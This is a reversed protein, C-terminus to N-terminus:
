SSMMKTIIGWGWSGGGGPGYDRGSVPGGNYNIGAQTLAANIVSASTAVPAPAVKKIIGSANQIGADGPGKITRPNLQHVGKKATVTNGSSSSSGAPPPPPPAPAPLWPPDLAYCVTPCTCSRHCQVMWTCSQRHRHLLRMVQPRRPLHMSVHRVPPTLASASAYFTPCTCSPSAPVHLAAALHMVTLSTCALCCGPAHRHPLYMCPLLWTCSLEASHSNSLTEICSGHSGAAPAAPRGPWGLCCGSIAPSLGAM